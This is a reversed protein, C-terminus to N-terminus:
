SNALIEPNSIARRLKLKHVPQDGKPFRSIEQRAKDVLESLGAATRAMEAIDISSKIGPDNSFARNWVLLMIAQTSLSAKALIREAIRLNFGGKFLWATSHYLDIAVMQANLLDRRVEIPPEEIRNLNRSLGNTATSLKELIHPLESFNLSRGSIKPLDGSLGMIARIVMSENPDFPKGSAGDVQFRGRMLDAAVRIAVSQFTAPLRSMAAYIPTGELATVDTLDYISKGIRREDRVVAARVIESVQRLTAHASELPERWHAERVPFGRMWLKWGMGTLKEKESLLQGIAIAQAATGLPHRTDSGGTPRGRGVQQVDPLLGM